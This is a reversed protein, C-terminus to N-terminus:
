EVGSAVSVEGAGIGMKKLKKLGRKHSAVQERAAEVAAVTTAAPQIGEDKAEKYADLGKDFQSQYKYQRSGNTDNHGGPVTGIMPGLPPVDLEKFQLCTPEHCGDEPGTLYPHNGVYCFLPM